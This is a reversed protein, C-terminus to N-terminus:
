YADHERLRDIQESTVIGGRTEFPVFGGIGKTAKKTRSPAASTTLARRALQSIVAGATRDTQRALAKAAELVDDDIELTTRM